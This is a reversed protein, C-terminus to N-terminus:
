FGVPEAVSRVNAFLIANDFAALVEGHTHNDNFNQFGNFAPDYGVAQALLKATYTDQVFGITPHDALVDVLNSPTPEVGKADCLMAAAVAGLGCFCKNETDRYQYQTWAKPDTIIAKASTLIKVPDLKNADSVQM